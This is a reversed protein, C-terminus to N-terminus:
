KSNWVVLGGKKTFKCPSFGTMAKGMLAMAALSPFHKQEVEVLMAKSCQPECFEAAKSKKPPSVAVNHCWRRIWPYSIKIDQNERKSEISSSESNRLLFATQNLVTQEKGQCRGLDSNDTSCKMIKGFKKNFKEHSSSETMESSKTGHASTPSLKLRKVWRSSPEQELYSGSRACSKLSKPQVGHSLLHEVDLSQTRSTSTEREDVSAALDPLEQNIDPLNTKVRNDRIEEETSPCVDQSTPSQQDM